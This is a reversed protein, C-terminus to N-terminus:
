RQKPRSLNMAVDNKVVYINYYKRCLNKFIINFVINVFMVEFTVCTKSISNKYMYEIRLTVIVLM